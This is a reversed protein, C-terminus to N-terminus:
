WVQHARKAAQRKTNPLTIHKEYKSVLGSEKLFYAITSPKPLNYNALWKIQKLDAYISKPGIKSGAPRLRRIQEVVIPDFTPLLTAQKPRGM